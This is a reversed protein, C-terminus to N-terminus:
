NIKDAPFDTGIIIAIDMDSQVAPHEIVPDSIGVDTLWGALWQATFAKDGYVRIITREYDARDANEIQFVDIGQITLFSQVSAALGDVTTGNYM